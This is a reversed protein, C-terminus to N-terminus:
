KSKVVKGDKQITYWVDPLIDGGVGFVKAAEFEGNETEKLLALMSGAKGKVKPKRGRAIAIAGIGQGRAADEAVDLLTGRRKWDREPYQVMYMCAASAIQKTSLERVIRMKTCAIQVSGDEDISGGAEVQCYRNGGGLPYWRLCDLVYEACHMGRNGTKSGDEELVDGVHYQKKGHGFRATFDPAFGKYAIM